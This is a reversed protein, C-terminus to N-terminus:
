QLNIKAIDVGDVEIKGGCLEIIRTLALTITSKGAGTRGVVGIKEGGKIEHGVLTIRNFEFVGMLNNFVTQSLFITNSKDFRFSLEIQIKVKGFYKKISFNNM